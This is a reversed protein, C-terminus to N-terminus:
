VVHFLGQAPQVLSPINIQLEVALLAQGSGGDIVANSVYVM